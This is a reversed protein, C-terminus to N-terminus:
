KRVRKISLLESIETRYDGLQERRRMSLAAHITSVVNLECIRAAISDSFYPHDSIGTLLPIDLHKMIPSGIIGVLGITTMGKEKALKIVDVVNKAQGSHNFGLVITEKSLRYVGLVQFFPDAIFTCPIGIQLFADYAARASSGSGGEGVIVVQPAKDILDVARGLADDDLISFTEDVSNQNFSFTKQKIASISEESNISFWRSSPTSFEHKLYLKFEIFGKFGISRCFRVITAPSTNTADALSQATLNELKKHNAVVYDAIRKEANSLMPYHRRIRTLSVIHEDM